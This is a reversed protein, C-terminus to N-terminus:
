FELISLKSNMRCTAVTYRRGPISSSLRPPGVSGSRAVRWQSANQCSVWTGRALLSIILNKRVRLWRCQACFFCVNASYRYQLPAISYQQLYAYTGFRDIHRQQSQAGHWGSVAPACQCTQDEPPTFRLGGTVWWEV